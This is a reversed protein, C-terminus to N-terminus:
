SSELSLVSAASASTFAGFRKALAEGFFLARDRTAGRAVTLSRDGRLDHGGFFCAWVSVFV